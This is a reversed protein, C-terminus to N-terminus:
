YLEAPDAAAVRRLAILGAGVSMVVALVFILAASFGSLQVALFTESAVYSYVAWAALIGVAFGGFSLVIAQELIIRRLFADSFGMAKLMAYQKIRDMIETFLIQYCTISGIVLGALMGIGFLVGIPASKLTFAIERSRVEQPTYVSIANPLAALIREKAREPDIGQTLWIAGMIPQSNPHRSLWTGDGMVMVGDTVIDAGINVFGSMRYLSGDLEVDDGAGFAGFIPRSLRDYLVSDPLQLKQPIEDADGITFPVDSPPFAMIVIRRLTLDKPDRVDM